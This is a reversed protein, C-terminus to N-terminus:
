NDKMCRVSLGKPKDRFICDMYPQIASLEMTFATWPQSPVENSAWWWGEWGVDMFGQTHESRWGGPFASFGTENTADINPTHWLGDGDELTGTAKLKGHAVEYGGLFTRLNVWETYSPVHWGTPCLNGTGVAYWNYLAGYIDKNIIDNNLWCYAPTILSGWIVDDTINPISTGGDNYQTVKLNEAMYWQDGIQVTHYYNGEIDTIVDPMLTGEILLEIFCGAKSGAITVELSSHDTLGSLSKIVPNVKKKFDATSIVVVGDIKVEISTCKTKNPGNQVKIVFNELYKFDSNTLAQTVVLPDKSTTTFTEPGYYAIGDVTLAKLNVDDTLWNDDESCSPLILFLACILINGAIYHWRDKVLTKM